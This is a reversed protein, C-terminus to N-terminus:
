RKLPSSERKMTGTALIEMIKYTGYKRAKLFGSWAAEAFRGDNLYEFIWEHAYEPDHQDYCAQVSELWRRNFREQSGICPASIIPLGLGVYFSLESPKTWLIDTDHLSENFAGFYEADTQGWIVRVNPCGPAYEDILAQFYEAVEKRLGAILNLRAERAKLKPALSKLAAAGIDKQAGAGGVAFAITPPRDAKAKANKKGLFHEVNLGHLPRFREKPDLVALRRGLDAKLVDLDENGLLELPLPFGTMYIKDDPVGYQRLRLLASGCPVFYEVRSTKPASSVWVRNIDADCIICYVRGHGAANAAMANQFFSTVMPLPKTDMKKLMTRCLGKGVMRDVFRTQITPFSLDVRPYQPKISQFYDMIGFLLNGVLPVSKVRSLREYASRMTDWIKLEDPEAFAASNAVIVSEEAMFSLPYVARKHGLGMDAATVWAKIREIEYPIAM